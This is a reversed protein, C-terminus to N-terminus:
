GEETCNVARLSANVKQALGQWLYTSIQANALVIM